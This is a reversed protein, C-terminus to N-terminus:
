KKDKKKDKKRRKANTSFDVLADEKVDELWNTFINQKLKALTFEEHQWVDQSGFERDDYCLIFNYGGDYGEMLLTMYEGNDQFYDDALQEVIEMDYYGDYMDEDFSLELGDITVLGM